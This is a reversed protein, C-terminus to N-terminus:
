PKIIPTPGGSPHGNGFGVIAWMIFIFYIMLMALILIFIAKYKRSLRQRNIWFVVLLVMFVVIAISLFVPNFLLNFM